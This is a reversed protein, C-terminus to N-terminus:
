TSKYCLKSINCSTFYSEPTSEAPIFSKYYTQVLVALESFVDIVFWVSDKLFDNINLLYFTLLYFTMTSLYKVSM